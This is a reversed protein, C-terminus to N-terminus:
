LAARIQAPSAFGRTRRSRGRMRAFLGGLIVMAFIDIATAIGMGMPGPLHARAGTPWATAPDAWHHPLRTAIGLGQTFAVDPWGHGTILAATQGVAWVGGTVVAVAALIVALLYDGPGDLVPRGVTVHDTGSGGGSVASGAVTNSMRHGTRFGLISM